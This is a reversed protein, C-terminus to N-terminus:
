FTVNPDESSYGLVHSKSCSGLFEHSYHTHEPQILSGKSHQCHVKVLKRSAGTNQRELGVWSFAQPCACHSLARPYLSIQTERYNTKKIQQNSFITSHGNEKKRKAQFLRDRKKQLLSHSFAVTCRGKIAEKMPTQILDFLNGLLMFLFSPIQTKLCYKSSEMSPHSLRCVGCLPAKVRVETGGEELFIGSTQAHAPTREQCSM